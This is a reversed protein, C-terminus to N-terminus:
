FSLHVKYRKNCREQYFLQFYGYNVLIVVGFRLMTILYGFIFYVSLQYRVRSLIFRSISGLSVELTGSWPTDPQMIHPM